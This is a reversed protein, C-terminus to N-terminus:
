GQVFNGGENLGERMRQSRGVAGLSEMGGSTKPWEKRGAQYMICRGWAVWGEFSVRKDWPTGWQLLLKVGRKANGAAEAFLADTEPRATEGNDEGRVMAEHAERIQIQGILIWPEGVFPNQVVVEQLLKLVEGRQVGAKDGEVRAKQEESVVPGDKGSYAACRPLVDGGDLAQAAKYLEWAAVEAGDGLVLECHGFVPPVHAGCGNARYFDGGIAAMRSLM